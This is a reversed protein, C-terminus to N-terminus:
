RTQLHEEILVPAGDRDVLFYVKGSEVTAAFSVEQSQYDRPRRHPAVLAKFRHHGAALLAGRQLDVWPPITERTVPAEDIATITYDLTSSVPPNNHPSAIIHERVVAFGDPARDMDWFACGGGLLALILPLAASAAM